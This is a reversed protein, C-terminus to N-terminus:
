KDIKLLHLFRDFLNKSNEEASDAIKKASLAIGSIELIISRTLMPNHPKSSFSSSAIQRNISRVMSTFKLTALEISNSYNAIALFAKHAYSLDKENKSTIKEKELLSAANSAFTHAELIKDKAAIAKLIVSSLRGVAAQKSEKDHSILLTKVAEALAEASAASAKAAQAGAIAAKSIDVKRATVVLERAATAAQKANFAAGKAILAADIFTNQSSSSLDVFHLM